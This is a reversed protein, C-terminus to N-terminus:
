KIKEWPSTFNFLRYEQSMELPEYVINSKEDDYRIEIYGTLPFDKRLPFGDFGYDTLIRRLDPHNLFFIGFMDWCEREIWNASNFLPALSPVYAQTYTKVFFRINYKTSLLNYNIEFRENKAPYDIVCIDGLIKAQISTNDKLSNILEFIYNNKVILTLSKAESKRVIVASLFKKYLSLSFQLYYDFNM